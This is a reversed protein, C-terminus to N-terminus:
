MREFFYGCNKCHWVKRKKIGMGLCAVMIILGIVTGIPFAFLLVIGFIFLAVALLQVVRSQDTKTQKTMGGGCQQCRVSTETMIGSGTSGSEFFVGCHPCERVPVKKLIYWGVFGMALVTLPLSIFLSINLPINLFNKLINLLLIGVLLIVFEVMILDGIVKPLPKNGGIRENQVMPINCVHCKPVGIIDM